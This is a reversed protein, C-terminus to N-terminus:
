LIIWGDLIISVDGSVVSGLFDSALVTSGGRKKQPPTYGGEIKKLKQAIVKFFIELEQAFKYNLFKKEHDLFQKSNFKGTQKISASFDYPGLFIADIDKIKKIDKINNLFDLNELMPIMIPKFTKMYKKFEKGFKNARCFGVGRNGKPPLM